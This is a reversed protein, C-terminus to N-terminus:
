IFVRFLLFCIVIITFITMIAKVIASRLMKSKVPTDFTAECTKCKYTKSATNFYLRRSECEPCKSVM